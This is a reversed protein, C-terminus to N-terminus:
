KGTVAGQGRKLLADFGAGGLIVAIYDWVLIETATQYGLVFVLAAIIGRGLSAGFKRGNFSEKSEGWGLLAGFIAGGIACVVLLVIDIETTM